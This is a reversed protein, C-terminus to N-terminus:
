TEEPTEAKQFAAAAVQTLLQVIDIVKDGFEELSFKSLFVEATVTATLDFSDKVGKGMRYHHILRSMGLQFPSMDCRPMKVPIFETGLLTSTLAVTIYKRSSPGVIEKPKPMFKQALMEAEHAKNRWFVSDELAADREKVIEDAYEDRTILYKVYGLGRKSKYQAVVVKAWGATTVLRTMTRGQEDKYSQECHTFSEIEAIGRMARVVNQHRVGLAKAIDQSNLGPAGDLAAQPYPLIFSPHVVVSSDTM